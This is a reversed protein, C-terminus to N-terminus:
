IFPMQLLNKIANLAIGFEVQLGKSESNKAFLANKNKDKNKKQKLLGQESQGEM